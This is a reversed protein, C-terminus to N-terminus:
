ALTAQYDRVAIPAVGCFEYTQAREVDSQALLRQRIRSGNYLVNRVAGVTDGTKGDEIHSEGEVWVSYNNFDRIVKWIVDASQEFVTSHYAKAM